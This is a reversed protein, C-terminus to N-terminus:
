GAGGGAEDLWVLGDEVRVSVRELTEGLCPGVVCYGDVVRFRAGHTTCVIHRGTEDLFRHPTVELPVGLHPCRNRYARIGDGTEIIVLDMAERGRGLTVGRAGTEALDALACVVVSV